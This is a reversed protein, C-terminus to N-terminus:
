IDYDLVEETEVRNIKNTKAYNVIQKLRSLLNMPSVTDDLKDIAVYSSGAENFFKDLNFILNQTAKLTEQMDTFQYIIFYHNDDIDIILDSIRIFQSLEVVDIPHKHYLLAFTFDLNYRQKIYYSKKVMVQFRNKVSERIM